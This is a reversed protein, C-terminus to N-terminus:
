ARRMEEAGIPVYRREATSSQIYTEAVRTEFRILREKQRRAAPIASSIIRLIKSMYTSLEENDLLYGDPNPAVLTRELLTPGYWDDLKNLLAPIQRLNEIISFVEKDEVVRSPGGNGQPKPRHIADHLFSWLGYGKGIKEESTPSAAPVNVQVQPPLTQAVPAEEHISKLSKATEIEILLDMILAVSSDLKLLMGKFKAPDKIWWPPGQLPDYQAYLEAEFETKTKELNDLADNLRKIETDIRQTFTSFASEAQKSLQEQRQGTTEM